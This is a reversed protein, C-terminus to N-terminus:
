KKAEGMKRMRSASKPRKQQQVNRDKKDGPKVPGVRDL